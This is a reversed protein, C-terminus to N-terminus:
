ILEYSYVQHALYVISILGLRVDEGSIEYESPHGAVNRFWKLSFLQHVLAEEPTTKEKRASHLLKGLMDEWSLKGETSPKGFKKFFVKKTLWEAVFGISRFSAQYEGNEYSEIASNLEAVITDPLKEELELFSNRVYFALHTAYTKKPGETLFTLFGGKCLECIVYETENDGVFIKYFKEYEKLRVRGCHSCPEEPEVEIFTIKEFM